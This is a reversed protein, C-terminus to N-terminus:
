LQHHQPSITRMYYNTYINSGSVMNLLLLYNASERYKESEYERSMLDDLSHTAATKMHTPIEISRFKNGGCDLEDSNRVPHLKAVATSASSPAFPFDSICETNPGICPNSWRKANGNLWSDSTCDNNVQVITSHRRRQQPQQSQAQFTTNAHSRMKVGPFQDAVNSRNVAIQNSSKMKTMLNGEYTNFKDYDIFSLDEYSIMVDMQQLNMLSASWKLNSSKRRSPTLSFTRRFTSIISSKESALSDISLTSSKTRDTTTQMAQSLPTHVSQDEESLQELRPKRMSNRYDKKLSIAAWSASRIFKFKPTKKKSNTAAVAMSESANMDNTGRLCEKSHTLSDYLKNLKRTLFFSNSRELKKDGLNFTSSSAASERQSPHTNSNSLSKGGNDHVYSHHGQIKYPVTDDCKRNNNIIHAANANVKDFNNDFKAGPPKSSQSKKRNTITKQTRLM